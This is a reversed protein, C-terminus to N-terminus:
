PKDRRKEAERSFGTVCIYFNLKTWILGAFHPFSIEVSFDKTAILRGSCSLVCVEQRFAESGDGDAEGEDDFVVFEM